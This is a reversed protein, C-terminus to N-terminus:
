SAVSSGCRNRRGISYKRHYGTNRCFENLIVRAEQLGARHYRSYIVQLYERRSRGNM